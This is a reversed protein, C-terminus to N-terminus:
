NNRAKRKVLFCFELNCNGLHWIENWSAGIVKYKMKPKIVFFPFAYTVVLTSLTLIYTGKGIGRWILLYKEFHFIIM